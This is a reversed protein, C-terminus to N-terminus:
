PTRQFYNAGKQINNFHTTVCNEKDQKIVLLTRSLQKPWINTMLM